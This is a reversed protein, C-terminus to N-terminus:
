DLEDIKSIEFENPNYSKNELIYKRLETGWPLALSLKQGNERIFTIKGIGGNADIIGPSIMLPSDKSYKIQERLVEKGSISEMILNEGEPIQHLKILYYANDKTIINLEASILIKGDEDGIQMPNPIFSMVYQFSNEPCHFKVIIREGPFYGNSTFIFFPMTIDHKGDLSKHLINGNEDIKLDLTKRFEKKGGLPRQIYCTFIQDIPFNKFNLTNQLMNLSAIAQLFQNESKIQQDVTYRAIRISPKISDETATLNFCALLFIALLKIM